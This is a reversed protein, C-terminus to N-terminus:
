GFMGPFECGEAEVIATELEERLTEADDNDELGELLDVVRQLDNAAGGCRTARSSSKSPLEKYSITLSALADPVTPAQLAELTEAAAAWEESKTPFKEETNEANTRVESGLEEFESFAGRVLDAVTQTILPSKDLKKQRAAAAKDAKAREAAAEAAEEPNDLDYVAGAM